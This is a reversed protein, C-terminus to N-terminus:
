CKKLMGMPVDWGIGTGEEVVIAKKTKIREVTGRANRGRKSIYFEVTDGPCLSNKMNLLNGAQREKRAQVLINIAETLEVDNLTHGLTNIINLKESM